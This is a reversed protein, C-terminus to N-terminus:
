SLTAAASQAIKILPTPYIGFLMVMFTSVTIALRTRISATIPEEADSSSLYMV